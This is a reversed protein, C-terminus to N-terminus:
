PTGTTVDKDEGDGGPLGDRGLSSVVYGNDKPEYLYPRGWPDTLAGRSQLYPGSWGSVGAPAAVLASLGQEGTPYTGTGLYYLDVASAVNRIQFSATDKRAGGLYGLVKPGILSALMAIIALVVLLEVLTFGDQATETTRAAESPRSLHPHQPSHQM